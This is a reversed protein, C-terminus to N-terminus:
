SRYGQRRCRTNQLSLASVSGAPTHLGSEASSNINVKVSHGLAGSPQIYIYLTIKLRVKYMTDRYLSQVAREENLAKESKGNLTVQTAKQKKEKCLFYGKDCM